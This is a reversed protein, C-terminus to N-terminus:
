TVQILSNGSADFPTPLENELVTINEAPRVVTVDAVGKIQALAIIRALIIDDGIKRSAIYNEIRRRIVPALNAERYGPRASISLRVSVRKVVPQEVNLFIGAAKVGAYSGLGELVQQSKAVIGRYYTYHALLKTTAWLGGPRVIQIEGTGRNLVYESRSMQRWPVGPEQVFLRESNRVVPLYKFNFRRRTPESSLEIVDVVNIIAGISHDSILPTDLALSSGTLSTYKVLETANGGEAEILVYGFPPWDSADAITVVYDGTTAAAAVTDQPLTTAAAPKSTGDDIYVTVEKNVFDEIISSSRVTSAGDDSTLNIVSATLARPTGRSLAQLKNLARTLFETDNEREAGGSAQTTNYFGAGPFPPGGPFRNIRNPAINGDAGPTQSKINIENSEYNGRIIYAPETTVYVQAPSVTTAPVQVQTGINIVRTQSTPAVPSALTGGTVFSVRDGVAVDFLISTVTLAGLATSNATVVLNQVRPTGEGVRITYPFGSTPFKATSECTVVTDGTSVVASATSKVLNQDYFRGKASAPVPSRRVLGFDALRSDLNAGKSNKMSFLDLLQVMQFYQEDDELAAAELITRIVSGVNFDSVTSNARMHAIMDRLIDDFKRPTFAM